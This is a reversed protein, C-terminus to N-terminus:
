IPRGIYDVRRPVGLLAQRWARAPLRRKKMLHPRRIQVNTMGYDLVETGLRSNLEAKPPTRYVERRAGSLPVGFFISRMTKESRVRISACKQRGSNIM